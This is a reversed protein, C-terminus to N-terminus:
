PTAYGVGLVVAAETAAGKLSLPIQRLRYPVYDGPAYWGLPYMKETPHNIAMQYPLGALQLTFLGMSAFPQILPHNSHGYRELMPDEFYLPNSYVNTALFQYTFEPFARPVYPANGLRVYRPFDLEPVPRGKPDSRDVPNPLIDTIKPLDAPDSLPLGNYERVPKTADEDAPQEAAKQDQTQSQLLARIPNVSSRRVGDGSPRAVVPASPSAASGSPPPVEAPKAPLQGPQTTAQSAPALVEFPNAEVPQKTAPAVPGAAPVQTTPLSATPLSRPATTTPEPGKRSKLWEDHLQEWRAKASREKLRKLAESEGVTTIPNAAATRTTTPQAPASRVPASKPPASRPATPKAPAAPPIVGTTVTVRPEPIEFPNESVPKAAPDSKASNSKSVTVLKATPSGFPDQARIVNRSARLPQKGVMPRLEDVAARGAVASFVQPTSTAPLEAAWGFGTVGWACVLGATARISAQM